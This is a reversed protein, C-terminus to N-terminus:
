KFAYGCAYISTLCTCEQGAPPTSGAPSGESKAICTVDAEGKKKGMLCDSAAKCSGGTQTGRVVKAPSAAMRETTKKKVAASMDSFAEGEAFANLSILSFLCLLVLKM